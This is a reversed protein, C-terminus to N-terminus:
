AGGLNLSHLHFWVCVNVEVSVSRLTSRTMNIKTRMIVYLKFLVGVHSTDLETTLSSLFFAVGDGDGEKMCKKLDELRDIMEETEFKLTDIQLALGVKQAVTSM